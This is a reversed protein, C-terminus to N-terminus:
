FVPEVGTYSRMIFARVAESTMYRYLTAIVESNANEPRVVLVNAYPNGSVSERFLSDNAPCLDTGAILHNTNIVFLDGDRNLLLPPLLAAELEIFQLNRPNYTIDGVTALVGAQPNIGANPDLGILGARELLM